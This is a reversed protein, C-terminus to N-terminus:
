PPLSRSCCVFLFVGVALGNGGNGYVTIHFSSGHLLENSAWNEFTDKNDDAVAPLYTKACM